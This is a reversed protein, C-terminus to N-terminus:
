PQGGIINKEWITGINYEELWVSLQDSDLHQFVTQNDRRESVLIDKPEFCNVLNVSQTAVIVQTGTAAAKKILASLKIIASPHLGLEPEDIIITQPKEPQLLLTAIAIFRLTGDSFNAADLYLDSGKEEWTLRIQDPNLESPQLKFRNFYPAISRVVAEIMAFNAPANQQLKYLFAPLNSADHRLMQNDEIQCARRMPSTVSTDHFHYVTFSQLFKRVYGAHWQIKDQIESELVANDWLTRNWSSYSSHGAGSNNFFDGSYEVYLKDGATPKLSFFFANTDDFNFLGYVSNSHAVGNYLMRNAGDHSMVYNGLQKAYLQNLLEFFSVFNSKGVGNCGILINIPGLELVMDRISKYNKIQIQKIM